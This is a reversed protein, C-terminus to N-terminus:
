KDAENEFDWQHKLEERTTQPLIDWWAQCYEDLEERADWHAWIRRLWLKLVISDQVVGDVIDIRPVIKSEHM